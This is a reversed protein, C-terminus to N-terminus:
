RFRDTHPRALPFAEFRRSTEDKPKFAHGLTPHM